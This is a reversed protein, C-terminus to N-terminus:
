RPETKKWAADIRLALALYIVGWLLLLPLPLAEGVFTLASVAAVLMLVYETRALRVPSWGMRLLRQYYHEVGSGACQKRSCRWVRKALTISADVVFPSFVLLPFWIAWYGLQWGWLGLAAALFGLPAAGAAGMFAKAPPWSFYLFGLGAAGVTFCIMALTDDNAMIAGIGYASFGILAMGATLGDSGDMAGYLNIAWVILPLAILAALWGSQDVLGAGAVLLVAVAVHAVLRKKLSVGQVDGLLSVIFLGALPLILWWKLLALMLAWGTLTGAVLGVGAFKPPPSPAEPPATEKPADHMPVGGFK